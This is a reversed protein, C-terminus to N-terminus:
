SLTDYKIGTKCTDVYAHKLKAPGGAFPGTGFLHFTMRPMNDRAATNYYANYFDGNIKALRAFSEQAIQESDAPIASGDTLEVAIEMRKTHTDDEYSSLRFSNLAPALKDVAYLVERLSDPTVNAGYYDISMDSRGYLFLVPLDAAKAFQQALDRRGAENLRAALEPMRMVHGRDHINYRIKPAIHDPRALTVVLEGKDNTEIYTALPNYQFVMPTVGYDTRIISERLQADDMVARRLAITTDTEIAVNIELDSAGYSGIVRQFSRGLYDRLSESIGEGGYGVDVAYKDWDIRTDDALTKLFPPYGMIVYKYDPGFEQMTSVIKDINPGTSKMISSSTLSMAVNMGTAWAGLAFANLIFVPRDDKVSNRFSLQMMRSVAEREREGRVWSTPKGSSGSSEDVMVGTRPLKGGVVRAAIPYAKVYSDKDMEPVCTMDPAFIDKNLGVAPKGGRQDLYDQYAPVNKYAKNMNHWARWAGVRWRASEFIKGPLLLARYPDGARILRHGIFNCLQVAATAPYHLAKMLAREFPAPQRPTTEQSAIEKKM